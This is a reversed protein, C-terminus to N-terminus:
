NKSNLLLKYIDLFNSANKKSNFFKSRELLYKKLKNKENKCKSLKLMKNVWLNKDLPSICFESIGFLEKLSSSNSSITAVGLSMAELLPLGFGEYLSPYLSAYCNKYLWLLESETVYGTVIIDENLQLDNIVKYFNNSKWGFQGAFVLPMRIGGNKLYEAYVKLIFIFNKRPEITGVILWFYNYKLVKKTNVKKEKISSNVFKSFLYIVSIRNSPFKPFLELFDNRTSHSISIIFDAYKAANCVGTYCVKYNEETTCNPYKIFSLDYLTYVLKSFHLKKPCWFNNSHIIDPYNIKEEFNESGWFNKVIQHNKIIETTRTNEKLYEKNIEIEPDFYDTGFNTLLLYKNKKDKKLINKLILDASTGCGAKKKGTQSIDFAIKIL